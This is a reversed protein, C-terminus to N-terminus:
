HKEWRARARAESGPIIRFLLKPVAASFYYTHGNKVLSHAPKGDPAKASGMSVAFACKGDFEPTTESM